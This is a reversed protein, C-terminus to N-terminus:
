PLRFGGFEFGRIGFVSLGLEGVGEISFGQNVYESCDM